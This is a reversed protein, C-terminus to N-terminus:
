TCDFRWVCHGGRTAPVCRRAGSGGASHIDVVLRTGDWSQQFSDGAPNESTSEIALVEVPAPPPAPEKSFWKTPNWSWQGCGALLLALAAVLTWRVHPNSGPVNVM